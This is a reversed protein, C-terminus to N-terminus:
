NNISLSILSIFEVISVPNIDYCLSCWDMNSQISIRMLIYIYSHAKIWRGYGRPWMYIDWSQRGRTKHYGLCLCLASKSPHNANKYNILVLCPARASFVQLCLFWKWLVASSLLHMIQYRPANRNYRRKALLLVLFSIKTTTCGATCLELCFLSSGAWSVEVAITFVPQGNDDVVCM